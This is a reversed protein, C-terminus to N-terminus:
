SQVLRIGRDEIVIIRGRYLAGIAKKYTKKSVGLLRYVDEPRSKDTLAIFGRHAKLEEIIRAAADDVKETGPKQLCLDIKGDDRVKKIFGSIRQGKRLPQFVENRYLLGERSNNIVAKYGIETRDGISLEVRQGERFEGPREQAHEDVKPRAVIRGSRGSPRRDAKGRDTQGTKARYARRV